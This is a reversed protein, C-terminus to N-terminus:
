YVAVLVAVVLQSQLLCTVSTTLDLDILALHLQIKMCIICFGTENFNRPSEFPVCKL